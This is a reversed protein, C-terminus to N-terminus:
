NGVNNRYIYRYDTMDSVQNYQSIELYHCWIKTRPVGLRKRLRQSRWAAVELKKGLEPKGVLYELAPKLDTDVSMLIGVDYRNDIAFTVYDLSILVDIGKEKEKEDPWRLPYKLPRTIVQAGSSKWTRCQNMHASYTKPQKNPDPRGRYVRVEELVRNSGEPGSQTLLQGLKIPDFQGQNSPDLKEFFARRAERYMNQYDIFLVVRQPM